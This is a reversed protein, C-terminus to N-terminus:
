GVKKLSFQVGNSRLHDVIEQLERFNLLIQHSKGCSLHGLIHGELVSEAEEETRSKKMNPRRFSLSPVGNDMWLEAVTGDFFVVKHEM